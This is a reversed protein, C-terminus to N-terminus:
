GQLELDQFAKILTNRNVELVKCLIRTGPLKTGEPLLGIQIAKIFEFVIQLYLATTEEPKLQIFSKFPIQVPSDMKTFSTYM